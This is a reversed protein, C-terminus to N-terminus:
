PEVIWFNENNFVIELIVNTVFTLAVSLLVTAFHDLIDIPLRIVGTVRIISAGAFPM